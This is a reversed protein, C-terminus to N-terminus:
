NGHFNFWYYYYFFRSFAFRVLSHIFFLLVLKFVNWTNGKLRMILLMWNKKRERGNESETEKAQLIFALARWNGSRTASHLTFISADHIQLSCVFEPFCPSESFLQFEFVTKSMTDMQDARLSYSENNSRTKGGRVCWWFFCSRGCLWSVICESNRIHIAIYTDYHHTTTQWENWKAVWIENPSAKSKRKNVNDHGIIIVTIIISNLLLPSSFTLGDIFAIVHFRVHRCAIQSVSVNM